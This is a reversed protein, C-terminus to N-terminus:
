NRESAGNFCRYTVPIPYTIDIENDKKFDKEIVPFRHLTPIPWIPATPESVSPLMGVSM